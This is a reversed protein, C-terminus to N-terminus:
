YKREPAFLQNQNLDGQVQINVTITKSSEQQKPQIDIGYAALAMQLARLRTGEKGNTLLHAMIKALAEISIGQSELSATFKDPASLIGAEQLVETVAENFSPPLVTM